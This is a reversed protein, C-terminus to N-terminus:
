LWVPKVAPGSPLPPSARHPSPRQPPPQAEYKTGPRRLPGVRLLATSKGRTVGQKQSVHWKGVLATSYNADQFTSALLCNGASIDLNAGNKPITNVHPYRGSLLM